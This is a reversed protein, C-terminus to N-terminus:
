LFFLDYINFYGITIFIDLPFMPFLDHPLVRYIKIICYITCYIIIHVIYQM